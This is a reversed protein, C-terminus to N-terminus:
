HMLMIGWIILIFAILGIISFWDGNKKYSKRKAKESSKTYDSFLVKPKGTIVSWLTLFLWSISSGIYYFFVNWIFGIILRGFVEILFDIIAEIIINM